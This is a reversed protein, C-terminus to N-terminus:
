EKTKAGMWWFVGGSPNRCRIRLSPSITWHLKQSLFGTYRIYYSPSNINERLQGYMNYFYNASGAVEMSFQTSTNSAGIRTIVWEEGSAPTLYVYTTSSAYHVGSVCDGVM